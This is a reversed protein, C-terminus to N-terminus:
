CFAALLLIAGFALAGLIEWALEKLRGGIGHWM